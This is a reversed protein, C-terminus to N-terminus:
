ECHGDIDCQKWTRDHTRKCNPDNECGECLCKGCYGEWNTAKELVVAKCRPCITFPKGFLTKVESGSFM